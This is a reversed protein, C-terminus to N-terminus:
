PRTCRTWNKKEAIAKGDTSEQDEEPEKKARKLSSTAKQNGDSEEQEKGAKRKVDKKARPGM